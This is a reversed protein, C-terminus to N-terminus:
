FHVGSLFVHHNNIDIQTGNDEDMSAAEIAYESYITHGVQIHDM